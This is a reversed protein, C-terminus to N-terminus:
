KQSLAFNKCVKGSRYWSYETSSIITSIAETDPFNELVYYHHLQNANVGWAAIHRYKKEEAYSKLVDVMDSWGITQDWFAPRNQTAEHIMIIEPNIEVLYAKDIRKQHAIRQDNLGWSDIAHWNSYLPLNGAETIVMTYGKQAFPALKLALVQRGDEYFREHTGYNIHQIGIALIGLGMIILRSKKSYVHLFPYSSIAVMPLLVYQFRMYYNMADSMLIWILTFGAVPLVYFILQRTSQHKFFRAFPSQEDHQNGHKLKAIIKVLAVFWILLFPSTLIVVNRISFLMASVHLGGGGKVYFPNPLPYGFYSWRWLFYASGFIGFVWIFAKLNPKSQRWGKYIMSSLMMMGALLVGEPRILGMVLAMVSFWYRANGVGGEQFTIRICYMWSLLAALAFVPTGFYSEIYSLGPGIGVFLSILFGIFIPAKQQHVLTHFIIFIIAIYSLVTPIRVANEISFGIKYFLAVIIMFLFDTAGDVPSEGPNWVVGHGEAIHKAYRMIMAADEFPPLDLHYFNLFYYCTSVLLLIASLLWYIRNNNNM